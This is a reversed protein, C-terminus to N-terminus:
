NSCHNIKELLALNANMIGWLANEVRALHENIGNVDNRLSRLKIAEVELTIDSLYETFAEAFSSRKQDIALERKM